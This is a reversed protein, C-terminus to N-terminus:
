KGIEKLYQQGAAIASSVGVHIAPSFARQADELADVLQEVVPVASTQEQAAPQPPACTKWHAALYEQLGPETKGCTHCRYYPNPGGSEKTFLATLQEATPEGAQEAKLARAKWDDIEVQMANLTDANIEHAQKLREVEAVLPARCLTAFKELNELPQSGLTTVHRKGTIGTCEQWEIGAERAMKVVEDKSLTTM